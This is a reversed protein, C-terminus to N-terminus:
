VHARGIEADADSVLDQQSRFVLRTDNPAAWGSGGSDEVVQWEFRLPFARVSRLADVAGPRPGGQIRDPPVQEVGRGFACGPCREGPTSSVYYEVPRGDMEGQVHFVVWRNAKEHVSVSPAASMCGLSGDFDLPGAVIRMEQNKLHAEFVEASNVTIRGIADFPLEIVPPDSPGPSPPTEGVVTQDPAERSIRTDTSQCGRCGPLVAMGLCAIILRVCKM